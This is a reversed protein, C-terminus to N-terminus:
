VGWRLGLGTVLAPHRPDDMKVVIDATRTPQAEDEYRAYAPLTWADEAATGRALAAASLSLHIILDFPLGRGLLLAGDLLIVGGPPVPVYPARTARDRVPDWLSPLILGTGGPELPMLVERALGGADLTDDYFADADYRGFEFRLSAPRLFDRASVRTADRGLARLPGVLAEALDEPRAAPAGDVAVRLRRHRPMAAVRSALEDVLL